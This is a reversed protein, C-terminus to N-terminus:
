LASIFMAIAMGCLTSVLARHQGIKDACYFFAIIMAVIMLMGIIEEWPTTKDSFIIGILTGLFAQILLTIYFVARVNTKKKM